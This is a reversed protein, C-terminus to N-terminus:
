ETCYFGSVTEGKLNCFIKQYFHFSQFLKHLDVFKFYPSLKFNFTLFEKKLKLHNSPLQYGVVFNFSDEDSSFNLILGIKREISQITM